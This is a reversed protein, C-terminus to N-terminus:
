ISGEDNEKSVGLDAITREGYQNLVAEGADLAAYRQPRDPMQEYISGMVALIDRRGRGDSVRLVFNMIESM